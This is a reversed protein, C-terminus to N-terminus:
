RYCCPDTIDKETIEEFPYMPVPRNKYPLSTLVGSAAGPTNTNCIEASIPEYGARFSTCAKVGVLDCAEPDIGFSRYFNLDGEVKGFSSVHIWIKGAKLVVTKGLYREAGKDQPGYQYFTGESISMVKADKVLVSKTLGPALTAGLTFDSVAGVGLKEAKEVAPIDSVAVACTLSDRYPLLHEIVYASDANAGANPSDASDVLVVPKGTKNEFAKQIVEDVPFLREGLLEKRIMFNEYALFAAAQKAKEATKAIVVVCAAMEKVDLWPQVEFITYDIIVGNKILDKAKEVLKLLGGKFTTYGHASAIMPIHVVATKGGVGNMDELLRNACRVGTEYQDLHPYAQFGSIYDANKAVKKTINGHLDFSASIPINEGVKKRFTELILGCVDEDKDSVTAGHLDVAIGDVNGVDDLQKLAEDLFTTVVNHDIPGGSVSRIVPGVIVEVEAKILTDRIGDVGPLCFKSPLDKGGWFPAFRDFSDMKMIVPNFSNSEQSFGCVFVKKSM